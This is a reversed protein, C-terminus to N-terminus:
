WSREPPVPAFCTHQAATRRVLRRTSTLAPRDAAHSQKERACSNRWWAEPISSSRRSSSTSSVAVPPDNPVGGIESNAASSSGASPPCGPVPWFSESRSKPPSDQTAGRRLRRAYRISATRLLEAVFDGPMDFPRQGSYSRSSTAPCISHVSSPSESGRRCQRFGRRRWHGVAATQELNVRTASPAHLNRCPSLSGEVCQQENRM